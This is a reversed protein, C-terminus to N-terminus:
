CAATDVVLRAPEAPAEEKPTTPQAACSSAAAEAVAPVSVTPAKAAPAEEKATASGAAPPAADLTAVAAAAAHFLISRLNLVDEHRYHEAPLARLQACRVGRLTNAMHPHKAHACTTRYLRRATAARLPPQRAPATTTHHLARQPHCTAHPLLM